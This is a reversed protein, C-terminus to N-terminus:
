HRKDFWRLNLNLRHSIPIHLAGFRHQYRLRVGKVRYEIFQCPPCCQVYALIDVGSIGIQSKGEFRLGLAPCCKFCQSLDLVRLELM